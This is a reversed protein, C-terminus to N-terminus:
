LDKYFKKRASNHGDVAWQPIPESPDHSDHFHIVTNVARKEDKNLLIQGSREHANRINIADGKMAAVNQNNNYNNRQQGRSQRPEWDDDRRHNHKRSRGDVTHHSILVLVVAIILFLAFTISTM